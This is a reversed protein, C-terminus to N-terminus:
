PICIEEVILSRSDIDSLRKMLVLGVVVVGTTTGALIAVVMGTPGWPPILSFAATVTVILTCCDAAFGSKPRETAWLGSTAVSGISSLLANLMLLSLLSGGGVFTDGFFVVILLDGFQWVLFFLTGVLAVRLRLSRLLVARLEPVGGSTYAHAARPFLFNNLGRIVVQAIGVFSIAAVFLGTAADGHFWDLVWPLLQPVAMGILYSALTWRGFSWNKRWDVYVAAGRFSLESRRYSWWAVSAIAAAAGMALFTTPPSLWGQLGLWVLLGVQLVGIVLDLLFATLLEFRALAMARICPQLLLWPTGILLAALCAMLEASAGSIWCAFLVGLLGVIALGCFSLQHLIVSASYQALAEAQRRPAYVWYPAQITQEQTGRAFLLLTFVLYYIGLEQQTCLRGVLLTTAFTTTSVTAQDFIYLITRSLDRRLLGSATSTSARPPPSDDASVESCSELLSTMSIKIKTSSISHSIFHHGRFRAVRSKSPVNM